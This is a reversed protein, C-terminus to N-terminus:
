IEHDIGHFTRGSGPVKGVTRSNDPLTQCNHKWEYPNRRQYFCAFPFEVSFEIKWNWGFNLKKLTWKTISRARKARKTLFYRALNEFASILPNPASSPRSNLECTDRTPVSLTLLREITSRLQFVSKCRERCIDFGLMCFVFYTPLRRYHLAWWDSVIQADRLM